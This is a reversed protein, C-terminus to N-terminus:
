LEVETHLSFCGRYTKPINLINSNERGDFVLYIQRKIRVKKFYIVM